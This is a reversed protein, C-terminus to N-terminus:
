IGAWKRVPGVGVLYLLRSSSNLKLLKAAEDDYFAGVGCCGIRMSAAGVYLRQGLRGAALLAHRYGRAGRTEELVKLNTMFLFQIACHELWMQDLCIHAMEEMFSGPEALALSGTKRYLVYFGPELGSSPGALLGVSISTTHFSPSDERSRDGACMMKLLGEFADSRLETEVFNRMSRRRFVAEPYKMFTPWEEPLSIRFSESPSLGLHDNMETQEMTQVLPTSLRHMKRIAPYDVEVQSVKSARRLNPDLEVEPLTSDISYRDGLACAV